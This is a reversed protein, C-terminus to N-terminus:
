MPRLVTREIVVGLLAGLLCAVILGGWFDLGWTVAANYTLFAGVVVLGAQAFNIVGTARYIVVFGLCVLAYIAGLAAGSALLQFFKTMASAGEAIDRVHRQRAARVAAR